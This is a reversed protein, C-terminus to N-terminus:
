NRAQEVNQANQPIWARNILLPALVPVDQKLALGEGHSVIQGNVVGRMVWGPNLTHSGRTANVMWTNGKDDKVTYSFVDNNVTNAFVGRVGQGSFDVAPTADNPTGEPTAPRDNPGPTPDNVISQRVAEESKNGIDQRYTYSHYSHIASNNTPRMSLWGWHAPKPVTLTPLDAIRRGNQDTPMIITSKGDESPFSITGSPDTKNLPDNGVYAYLNFDDEYGVPDTQMFRGLGANYFRAKYYLLGLEPIAAQGTYQFRGMNGAAAIGYPDYRNVQLTNGSASTVAVISGQHNAHLYRRNAASVQSGEYWVVPEDVGTGHVYRRLLTGSADYEAVLQDGDYAFRTTASATAVEYLRGLPDYTLTANKAGSASRLRNESDYTFTTGGDSTLNGNADWGLTAPADGSIQTYQNLGNVAYTLNSNAIPFEYANNTLSRTVIQSAPNYVYGMTLDKDTGAGDLDHALATLRSIPDYGYQTATGLADRALKDRRGQADYSLSALTTSPGNQSLHFFRDLGDYAYEFYNGDPHTVRTRNGDADYDSAVDRTVGGLNSRSLRLRGAGDYTNTIGQGSDSGFRAYLQLGRLDYDNYVTYGPAGSASTPVTKVRVRNLADYSFTITREDRKRLSTRNANEDYGYEEYDAEDISGINTKHPLQWRKLRGHGDYTYQTKSGNADTVTEVRGNPTYTYTVYDQQLPTGFAKQLKLLQGAGDYVQRTIRDPGFSGEMGLACASSPPSAFAAPNMRVATCEPRGQADYSYQTVAMLLTAGSAEVGHTREITKRGLADYSSNVITDAKFDAGWNAPAVAESKWASLSGTEVATLNGASDYTYRVARYRLPGAGDPDPVITGTRRGAADYRYGKTYASPSSQPYVATSHFMTGLLMLVGPITAILKQKM